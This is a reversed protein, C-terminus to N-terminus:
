CIVNRRLPSGEELEVRQDAHRLKHSGQIPQEQPLCSGGLPIAYLDAHAHRHILGRPEHIATGM